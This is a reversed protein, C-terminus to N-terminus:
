KKALTDAIKITQEQQSIYGELSKTNPLNEKQFKEILPLTRIIKLITHLDSMTTEKSEITQMLETHKSISATYNALNASVLLKMKNRLVSDKIANAHRDASSFYSQNKANFKQFAGTTDDKSKDLDDVKEELKALDADKSVLEDYLSEVMDDYSRKSSIEYSSNENTLAKPTAPKAKDQVNKTHCASLVSFLIISLFIKITM